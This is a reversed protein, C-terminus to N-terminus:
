RPVNRLAYGVSIKGSLHRRRIDLDYAKALTRIPSGTLSMSFATAGEHSYFSRRPNLNVTTSLLNKLIILM